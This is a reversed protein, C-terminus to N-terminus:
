HHPEIIPALLNRQHELNHSLNKLDCLQKKRTEGIKKKSSCYLLSLMTVIHNVPGNLWLVILNVIRVLRQGQTSFEKMPIIYLKIHFYGHLLRLIVVPHLRSCEFRQSKSLYKFICTNLGKKLLTNHLTVSWNLMGLICCVLDTMILHNHRGTCAIFAGDNWYRHCKSSFRYCQYALYM